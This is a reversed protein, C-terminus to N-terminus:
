GSPSPVAFIHPDLSSNGGRGMIAKNLANRLMEQIRRKPSRGAPYCRADAEIEVAERSRSTREALDALHATMLRDRREPDPVAALRFFDVLSQETQQEVIESVMKAAQPGSYVFGELNKFELSSPLSTRYFEMSKRLSQQLVRMAATAVASSKSNATEAKAEAEASLAIVVHEPSDAVMQALGSVTLARPRVRSFLSAELHKKFDPINKEGFEDLKEALATNNQEIAEHLLLTVAAEGQTMNYAEELFRVERHYDDISRGTLMVSETLLTNVKEASISSNRFLASSSRLLIGRSRTVEAISGNRLMLRNMMSKPPLTQGLSPDTQGAMDLYDAVTETLLSRARTFHQYIEQQNSRPTKSKTFRDTVRQENEKHLAQIAAMCPIPNSIGWYGTLLDQAIYSMVVAKSAGKVDAQPLEAGFGQDAVLQALETTFDLQTGDELKFFQSSNWPNNKGLHHLVALGAGPKVEREAGISRRFDNLPAMFRECEAQITEMFDAFKSEVEKLQEVTLKRGLRQNIKDGIRSSLKTQVYNDLMGVVADMTQSRGLVRDLKGGAADLWKNDPQMGIIDMLTVKGYVPSNPMEEGFAQEAKLVETFSCARQEITLFDGKFSAHGQDRMKTPSDCFGATYPSLTKILHKQNRTLPKVVEASPVLAGNNEGLFRQIHDFAFHAATDKVCQRFVRHFRVTPRFGSDENGVVIHSADLEADIVDFGREDRTPTIKLNISNGPLLALKHALNGIEEAPVMKELFDIPVEVKFADDVGLKYTHRLFDTTEPDSPSLELQMTDKALQVANRVFLGNLTQFARNM